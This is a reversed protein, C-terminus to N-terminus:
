SKKMIVVNYALMRQLLNVETLFEEVKHTTSITILIKCVLRILPVTHLMWLMMQVHVVTLLLMLLRTLLILFTSNKHHDVKRIEKVKGNSHFIKLKWRVM